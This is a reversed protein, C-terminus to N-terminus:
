KDDPIAATWERIQQPTMRGYPMERADHYGWQSTAVLYQERSLLTGRCLGPPLSEEARSRRWLEEMVWNPVVQRHDPYVFQFLLLQSLLVPAHPGFRRLLRMWDLTPGSKRLIHAVDAGDYREREQVFSKSWIMEEAPALHVPVELVVSPVGHKLWDDDVEVLGNGGAFIMDVFHGQDFAKGLWHSYVLECGIGHPALTEGIRSWDARRIFLDLDKTGRILDAYHELAYTGGVLYPIGAERLNWIVSRYIEAARRDDPAHLVAHGM